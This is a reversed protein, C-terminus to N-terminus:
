PKGRVIGRDFVNVMIAHPSIVDLSERLGQQCRMALLSDITGYAYHYVESLSPGVDTGIFGARPLAAAVNREFHRRTYCAYLGVLQNPKKAKAASQMANIMGWKGIKNRHYWSYNTHGDALRVPPCFDPGAGDRAHGSYLVVEAGKEIASNFEARAAECQTTQRARNADSTNFTNDVSLSGKVIKLEVQLASGSLNKTTKLYLNKDQLSRRFGCLNLGATCPALMSRVILSEYALEFVFNGPSNDAYGLGWVINLVGDRQLSEYRQTCVPNGRPGDSNVRLTGQINRQYVEALTEAHVRATLTFLCITALFFTKM